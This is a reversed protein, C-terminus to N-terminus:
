YNFLYSLLSKSRRRRIKRKVPGIIERWSTKLWVRQKMLDDGFGRVVLEKDVLGGQHPYRSLRPLPSFFGHAYHCLEHAITADIMFEPVKEDQFYGTITILTDPHRSVSKSKLARISGLRTKAKRGFVIEVHNDRSVDSFNSKWIDELKTRLWDNDRM